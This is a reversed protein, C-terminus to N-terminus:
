IKHANINYSTNTIDLMNIIANTEINRKNKANNNIDMVFVYDQIIDVALEIM